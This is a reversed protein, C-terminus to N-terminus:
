WSFTKASFTLRKSRVAFVDDLKELLSGLCLVQPVIFQHEKILLKNPLHLKIIYINHEVVM